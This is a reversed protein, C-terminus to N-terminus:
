HGGEPEQLDIDLTKEEGDGLIADGSGRHGHSDWVTLSWTGPALHYVYRGDDDVRVQDVIDGTANHLEVVATTAPKEGGHVTIRGALKTTM